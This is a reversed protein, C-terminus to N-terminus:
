IRVPLILYPMQLKLGGRVLFIHVLYYWKLWLYFLISCQINGDITIGPRTISNSVLQYYQFILPCRYVVLKHIIFTLNAVFIFFLYILQVMLYAEIAPHVLRIRFILKWDVFDIIHYFYFLLNLLNYILWLSPSSLM